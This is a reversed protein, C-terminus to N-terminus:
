LIYTYLFYSQVVALIICFMILAGVWLTKAIKLRLEMGNVMAKEREVAVKKLEKIYADKEKITGASDILNLLLFGRVEYEFIKDLSIM